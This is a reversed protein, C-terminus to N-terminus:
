HSEASETVFGVKFFALKLPPKAFLLGWVVAALTM